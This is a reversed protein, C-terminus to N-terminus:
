ATKRGLGLLGMLVTYIVTGVKGATSEDGDVEPIVEDVIKEVTEPIKEQMGSKILKVGSELAKDIIAVSAEEPLGLTIAQQLILAKLEDGHKAVLDDIKQVLETTIREATKEAFDDKQAKTFGCGMVMMSIPLVLILVAHRISRGTGNGDKCKQRVHEPVTKQETDAARYVQNLVRRIKDRIHRPTEPDDRKEVLERIKQETLVENLNIEEDRQKRKIAERTM